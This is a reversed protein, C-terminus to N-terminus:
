YHIPHHLGEATKKGDASKLTVADGDAVIEAQEKPISATYRYGSSLDALTVSIGRERQAAPKWM